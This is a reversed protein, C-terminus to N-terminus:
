CEIKKRRFKNYKGLNKWRIGENLASSMAAWRAYRDLLLMILIKGM